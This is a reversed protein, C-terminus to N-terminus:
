CQLARICVPSTAKKHAQVQVTGALARASGTVHRVPGHAPSQARAGPGPQRVLHPPGPRRAGRPIAGRARACLERDVVFQGHRGAFGYIPGYHGDCSSWFWRQSTVSRHACQGPVSVDAASEATTKIAVTGCPPCWPLFQSSSRTFRIMGTIKM